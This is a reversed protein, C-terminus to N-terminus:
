SHAKVIGIVKVKLGRSAAMIVAPVLKYCYAKVGIKLLIKKEHSNPATGEKLCVVIIGNKSKYANTLSIFQPGKLPNNGSLNIHDSIDYKKKSLKVLPYIYDTIEVFRNKKVNKIFGKGM